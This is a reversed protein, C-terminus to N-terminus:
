KQMIELNIDKTSTNFDNDIAEIQIVHNWVPLEREENIPFIINRETIGAKKTVWDIRINITRIPSRDKVEAKLNFFEDNYIKINWDIPNNLIIEPPTTDKTVINIDKEESQSNYESDVARLKLKVKWNEIDTPIVFKWNYAWELKDELVIEDIVEGDILVDVKKIPNNSRYAFEVYNEWTTFTDENEITSKISIESTEGTRECVKDSVSTVMNPINWYRKIFDEWKSWEIVSNEWNQNAPNISHLQVLTVEKIAAEPTKDSVAWNCLIDVKVKKFSNDYETPVNIFLSDVLQGANEAEPNPLLWSMESINIEKVWSTRKWNEVKKWEHAYTMYDRMIPWASMLWDWKLSVESWDTNWAWAVTTIQPTYWVAWLNCPFIEKKWNKVYQKTSTWTKAALKRGPITLYKNWTDPRASTDSLISNIIYSQDKSIAYKWENKENDEITNWKSDIIKLIWSVENKVWLNAFVSYAWALELPTMEWTWLALPAWYKNDSKLSKVWLIKMFDVIAKEWWAMYFMKVAPINRSNNLATSINMKWMFGWDFNKPKYWPFNTELDYIPTKTWIKNKFIWMSYIFPKFSSWPQLTSTIINVNWKNEVDFYDKWWVMSLIQWNKNDISILAANSAWVNATNKTSYKEVIEEAKAQLKPDLTTYVKLWWSEIIDRWYKNELYEKIYFVFHPAKIEEKAQIFNYWISNIIANKYQDFDIYKDELMRDLIFDKRWTQYEINVNWNELKIWNLFELLKSYEIITCWDNDINIKIKFNEKKLNCILTKNTWELRSSKLNNLFKVFIDFNAINTEKDKQTIIKTINEKDEKSYFYPYWVVRDTHNYPSYFSPWKPLSALISSEMVWLDKASKWFFTKAAQEIGYANHWYSIKNLYLEIIKEKSVWASLKYSLYIEKIKREIERESSILTNRILQQTITSTWEVKDTKWIVRYIVARLIWILDVWSNEWYRKDEWAVIANIMNKNIEEFSVYTRKEKFIKYLEWWDRDYIITSEAINLNELESISPLNSIYKFYLFIWLIFSFVTFFTVTYILFRVIWKTKKDNNFYTSQKSYKINLKRRNTHNNINNHNNSITM